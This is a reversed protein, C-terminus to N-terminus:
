AYVKLHFSEIIPQHLSFDMNGTGFFDWDFIKKDLVTNVKNVEQPGQKLMNYNVVFNM